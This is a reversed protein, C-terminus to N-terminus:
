AHSAAELGGAVGHARLLEDARALMAADSDLFELRYGCDDHVQQWLPKMLPGDAIDPGVCWLCGLEAPLVRRGRKLLDRYAALVEPSALLSGHWWTVSVYPRPPRWRQLLLGVARSMAGVMEVNFPGSAEFCMLRGHQWVQLEGHALFRGQPLQGVDIRPPSADM